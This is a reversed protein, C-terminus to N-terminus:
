QSDKTIAVAEIEVVAGIPLKGVQLASRAPPDETFFETYIENMPGYDNIDNLFVTTKIVHTLDSDAAELIKALNSLAQRTESQIGGEVLEGTAPNLGVQGATYIMHGVRIAPSYPAVPKAGGVPIIVEKKPM